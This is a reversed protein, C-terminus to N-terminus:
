ENNKIVNQTPLTENVVRGERGEIERVLQKESETEEDTTVPPPVPQHLSDRQDVLQETEAESAQVPLGEIQGTTRCLPTIVPSSLSVSLTPTTNVRRGRM